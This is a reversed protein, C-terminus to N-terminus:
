KRAFAVIMVVVGAIGAARYCWPLHRIFWNAPPPADDPEPALGAVRNLRAKQRQAAAARLNSQHFGRLVIGLMCLTVGIALLADFSM